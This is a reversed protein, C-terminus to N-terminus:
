KGGDIGGHVEDGELLPHQLPPPLAVHEGLTEPPPLTRGLPHEVLPRGRGVAPGPEVVDPGPRELVEEGAEVGHPAAVDGTLTPPVAVAQRDLDLDLPLEAQRALGLDAVEADLLEVAAAPLRDVAVHLLPLREGLPHAHPEVGGAGVPREVVAEDFRHPPQDALHPVLAQQVLAEFDHRVAAPAPRRQRAVLDGLPVLVDGLVGDVDAERDVTSVEVEQHPRGRGPRQDGVDGGGHPGLDVVHPDVPWSHLAVDDEAPVPDLRHEARLVLAAPLDDLRQPGGVQGSEM